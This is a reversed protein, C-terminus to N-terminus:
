DHLKINKHIERFLAWLRHISKDYQILITDKQNSVQHPIEVLTPLDTTIFSIGTPKNIRQSDSAVAYGMHKIFCIKKIDTSSPSHAFNHVHVIALGDVPLIPDDSNFVYVIQKNVIRVLRLESETYNSCHKRLYDSMSIPNFVVLKKKSPFVYKILNEYSKPGMNKDTGTIKNVNQILQGINPSEIILKLASSEFNFSTNQFIKNCSQTIISLDGYFPIATLLENIDDPSRIKDNMTLKNKTFFKNLIQFQPMKFVVSNLLNNVTTIKEADFFYPMFSNGCELMVMQTKLPLIPGIHSMSEQYNQPYFDLDNEKNNDQSEEVKVRLCSYLPQELIPLTPFCESDPSYIFYLYNLNDKEDIKSDVLSISNGQPEYIRIKKLMADNIPSQLFKTGLSRLITPHYVRFPHFHCLVNLLRKRVYVLFLISKGKSRTDQPTYCEKMDNPGIKTPIIENDTFLSSIRMDSNRYYAFFSPDNMDLFTCDFKDEFYYVFSVLFYSSVSSVIFAPFYPFESDVGPKLILVDPESKENFFKYNDHEPIGPLHEVNLGTEMKFRDFVATLVTDTYIETRVYENTTVPSSYDFKPTFLNSLSINSTDNQETFLLPIRTYDIIVDPDSQQQQRILSVLPYNQDFSKLPPTIPYLSALTSMVLSLQKNFKPKPLPLLEFILLTSSFDVKFPALRLCEGIHFRYIEENLITELKLDYVYFRIIIQDESTKIYKVTPTNIDSLLLNSLIVKNDKIGVGEFFIRFNIYDYETKTAPKNIQPQKVYPVKMSFINEERLKLDDKTRIVFFIDDETTNVKYIDTRYFAFRRSEVSKLFPIEDFYNQM